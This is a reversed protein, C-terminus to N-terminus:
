DTKLIIPLQFESNVQQGRKIAPHIKPLSDLSNHILSDLQPIGQRLKENMAIQQIQLVGESSIRFSIVLTDELDEAVVIQAHEMKALIGATLTNEFCSKRAAPETETTCNDFTPYEDVENWSFSELSQNLYEESSVKKKEFYSCSLTSALFCICSIKFWWRM